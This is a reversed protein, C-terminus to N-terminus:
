PVVKSTGIRYPGPTPECSVHVDGVVAANATVRYHLFDVGISSGAAATTSLEFEVSPPTFSSDNEVHAALLLRIVGGQHWVRAGPRVNSTGTDPIIRASGEVYTSGAPIKYESVMDHIDKLGFHSVRGSPTGDLRVTFSAGQRVTAPVTVALDFRQNSPGRDCVVPVSEHSGAFVMATGGLSSVAFVVGVAIWRKHQM